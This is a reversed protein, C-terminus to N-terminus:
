EGRPWRTVERCMYLKRVQLLYGVETLRSVSNGGGYMLQERQPSNAANEANEMRGGRDAAKLISRDVLSM